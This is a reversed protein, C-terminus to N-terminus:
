KRDRRYMSDIVGRPPRAVVGLDRDRKRRPELRVPRVVLFPKHELPVLGKQRTKPRRFFGVRVKVKKALLSFQVM